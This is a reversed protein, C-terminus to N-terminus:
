RFVNWGHATGGGAGCLQNTRETDQTNEKKLQGYLGFNTASSASIAENGNSDCLTLIFDDTLHKERSYKAGGDNQPDSGPFTYVGNLFGEKVLVEAISQGQYNAVPNKKTIRGEGSGLYGVCGSGGNGQLRYDNADAGKQSVSCGGSRDYVFYSGYRTNYLELAQRYGRVSSKINSDFARARSDNFNQTVLTAIISIIAVAILLEIISFAKIKKFM